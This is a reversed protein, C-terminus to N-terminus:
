GKKKWEPKIYDAMPDRPRHSPNLVGGAGVSMRTASRDGHTHQYGAKLRKSGPYDLVTTKTSDWVMPASGFFRTATAACEPCPVERRYTSVSGTIEFTHEDPCRYEYTPM